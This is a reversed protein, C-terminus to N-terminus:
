KIERVQIINVPCHNAAITGNEKQFVPIDLVFFGKKNVAHLLNAKGDNTDIEFLDPAVEVCYNCGICKERQHIIKYHAMTYLFAM